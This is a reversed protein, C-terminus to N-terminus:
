QPKSIKQFHELTEQLTECSRKEMEIKRNIEQLEFLFEAKKQDFNGKKHKVENMYYEIDSEVTKQEKITNNVFAKLEREKMEVYRIKDRERKNLEDNIM